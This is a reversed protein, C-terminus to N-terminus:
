TKLMQPVLRWNELGDAISKRVYAGWSNTRVEQVEATIDIM